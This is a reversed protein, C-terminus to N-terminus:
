TIKGVYSSLCSIILIDGISKKLSSWVFQSDLLLLDVRFVYMCTVNYLGIMNHKQIYMYVYICLCLGVSVCDFCFFDYIQILLPNQVM